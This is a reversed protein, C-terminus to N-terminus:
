SAWRSLRVHLSQLKELKKGSCAVSPSMLVVQTEAGEKWFGDSVTSKPSTLSVQKTKQKKWSSHYAYDIIERSGSRRVVNVRIPICHKLQQLAIWVDGMLRPGPINLRCNWMMQGRPQPLEQGLSSDFSWPTGETNGGKELIHILMLVRIMFSLLLRDIAKTM